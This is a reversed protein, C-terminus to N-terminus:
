SPGTASSSIGQEKEGTVTGRLSGTTLVLWYKPGEPPLAIIPLVQQSNSYERYGAGGAGAEVYITLGM